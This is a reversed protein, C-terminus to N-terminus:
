HRGATKILNMLHQDFQRLIIETSWHTVAYNRGKKGLRVREVPSQALELIASALADADEPPSLVGTKSIVKGVETDKHVTAIVAKGSALMGSLKSPMVLDAAGVRQPLLHIDALNLLRNLKEVSQVPLFILNPLGEASYILDERAAGDGCLIFVLNSHDKLLKAAEIVVGLGQKRGLNGAYLMVVAEMSIGLSLRFPNNSELPLIQNTDVWNPLLFCKETPLDKNLLGEMMRGSITSIKDFKKLLNRELWAAIRALWHGGPFMGLKLAADLEFDQIHLWSKSQCLYTFLLVGPANMLTPAICLVLDPKWPLQVALALLSSLAFSALHLLRTLGTPRRPVWLPCRYIKLGKWNERTFRWAHYGPAVRWQPYYPPATIVHVLFGQQSLYAALEGTYKGTSTLEPFFNLGIILIKKM